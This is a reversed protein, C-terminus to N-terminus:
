TAREFQRAEIRTPGKARSEYGCYIADANSLYAPGREVQQNHTRSTGYFVSVIGVDNLSPCPREVPRTSTSSRTSSL